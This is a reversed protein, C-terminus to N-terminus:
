PMIAPHGAVVGRDRRALPGEDADPAREGLVDARDPVEHLGVRVLVDEDGLFQHPIELRHLLEHHGLDLIRRALPANDAAARQVHHPVVEGLDAGEGDVDVPAAVPDAV